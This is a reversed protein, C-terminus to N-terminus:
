MRMRMLAMVLVRALLLILKLVLTIIVVKKKTMRMIMVRIKELNKKRMRRLLVKLKSINCPNPILYNPHSDQRSEELVLEVEVEVDMVVKDMM